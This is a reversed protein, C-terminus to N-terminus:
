VNAQIQTDESIISSDVSVTWYQQVKAIKKKSKAM